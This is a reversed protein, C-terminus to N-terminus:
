LSHVYRRLSDPVYDVGTWFACARDDAGVVLAQVRRCGLSLLREEGRRVLLAAIGRRRVDPRVALRYMSGRWGDWTAILTGVVRGESEAILLADPDRDVLAALAAPDDTSTPHAGAAQWLDLVAATDATTGTRLTVTM